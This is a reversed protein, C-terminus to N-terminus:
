RATSASGVLLGLDGAVQEADVGGLDDMPTKMPATVKVPEITANRLSDARILDLGSISGASVHEVEARQTAKATSVTTTRSRAAAEHQEDDDGDIASASPQCRTAEIPPPSMGTTTEISM